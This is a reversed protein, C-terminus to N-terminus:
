RWFGQIMRWETEVQYLLLGIVQDSVLITIALGPICYPATVNADHCMWDNVSYSAASGETATCEICGGVSSVRTRVM